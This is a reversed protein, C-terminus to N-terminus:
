STKRGISGLDTRKEAPVFPNKTAPAALGRPAALTGGILYVWAVALHLVGAAMLQIVDLLGFGYALIATTFLLAGPMLAAGALRWSARAKLDRDSYFGLLWVPLFYCSALIAWIILCVGIVALGAIGLIPPAWAGWWPELQAQEFPIIRANPYPLDLYGLLSLLRLDREGFEWQVHAPSRIEGHHHLDVSIALFHNEALRVPIPSNLSLTGSRIQGGAPLQEIAQHAVPFWNSSLFWIVVGATFLSFVTQVLLLRGLSARAFSAVGGFTLPQWAFQPKESV